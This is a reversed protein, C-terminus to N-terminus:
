ILNQTYTYGCDVRRYSTAGNEVCTADVHKTIEMEHEARTYLIYDIGDLQVDEPSGTCCFAHTFTEQFSGLEKLLYVCKAHEILGIVTFFSYPDKNAYYASCVYVDALSTCGAFSNTYAVQMGYLVVSQLGSCNMFAGAGVSQVAKPITITTLNVCDAFTFHCISTIGEDIKVSNIQDAYM